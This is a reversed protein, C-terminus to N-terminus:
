GALSIIVTALVKALRERAARRARSGLPAVCAACIPSLPTVFRNTVGDPDINV